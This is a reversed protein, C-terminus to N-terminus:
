LAHAVVRPVPRYSKDDMFSMTPAEAALTSAPGAGALQAEVGRIGNTATSQWRAPASSWHGGIRSRSEFAKV